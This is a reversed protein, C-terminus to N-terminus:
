GFGRPHAILSGSQGPASFQTDSFGYSAQGNITPLFGANAKPVNEDSARVGARQQNIDPNNLYAKALAGALTEAVAPAAAFVAVAALVASRAALRWYGGGAFFLQGVSM